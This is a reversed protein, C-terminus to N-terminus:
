IRRRSSHRILRSCRWSGGLRTLRSMVSPSQRSFRQPREVLMPRLSSPRCASASPLMRARRHSGISACGCRQDTAECPSNSQKRTLGEAEGELLAEVARTAKHRTRRPKGAPNGSVGPQFQGRQKGGANESAATM